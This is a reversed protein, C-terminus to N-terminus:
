FKKKQKKKKNKCIGHVLNIVNTRRSERKIEIKIHVCYYTHLLTERAFSLLTRPLKKSVM